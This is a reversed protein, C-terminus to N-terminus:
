DGDLGGWDPTEADAEALIAAAGAALLQRALTAGLATADAAGGSVEGRLVRQGDPSAVLGQLTLVGGVIAAHAGVPTRCGGGLTRAFEQEARVTQHTTFDDVAAAAAVAERDAGRAEVGIAGQGPAPMVSSLPLVESIQEELGLRRLGAAALVVADFEGAHCKRIRTDVNGRVSAFVLDPRIAKLQAARRLSGTGVKAGWPLSALTAGGRTVLADRPDERPGVIALSIGEAPENPLDKVSHVALDIERDMLARRIEDAFAGRAGLEGLKVEQLRDGRTRIRRVEFQQNPLRARLKAIVFDTQWIALPSGRTGVVITRAM